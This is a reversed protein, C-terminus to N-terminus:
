IKKQLRTAQGSFAFVFSTRKIKIMLKAFNNEKQLFLNVVYNMNLNFQLVDQVNHM